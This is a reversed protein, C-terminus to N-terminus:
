CQMKGLDRFDLVFTSRPPKNIHYFSLKERAMMAPTTWASLSQPLSKSTSLRAMNEVLSVGALADTRESRSASSGVMQLITGKSSSGTGAAFPLVAAVLYMQWGERVFSCLLTLLGDAVLSFRTYTLDFEFTQEQSKTTPNKDEGDAALSGKGQQREQQSSSSSSSSSSSLLPARESLSEADEGGRKRKNTTVKRGHAILKPFAFTLFAGRLMSYMFILWGNERTGFNFVDTSYLQLLTPLYGQVKIDTHM